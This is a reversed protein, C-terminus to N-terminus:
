ELLPFSFVSSRVQIGNQSKELAYKMLRHRSKIRRDVRSIPTLPVDMLLAAMSLRVLFSSELPVRENCRKGVEGKRAPTGFSELDLHFAWDRLTRSQKNLLWFIQIVSM